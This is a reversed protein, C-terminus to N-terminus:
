KPQPLVKFFNYIIIRTENIGAEKNGGNNLMSLLERPSFFENRALISQDIESEEKREKLNTEIFKQINPHIIVSFFIVTIANILYEDDFIEYFQKIM